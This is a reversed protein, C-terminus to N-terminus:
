LSRTEKETADAAPHYRAPLRITVTTGNNEESDVTLTGHHNECIIKRCVTLGLGMGGSGTKTTFFPDFIRKAVDKKIGAGNDIFEITVYHQGPGSNGSTRITLDGHEHIADMANKIVNLVVQKIENYNANIKPLSQQLNVNLEIKKGPEQLVPLMLDLSSSIVDNIDTLGYKLPDHPASFDLCEKVFNNLRKIEEHIINISQDILPDKETRKQIITLAGGIAHLPNRIEHAVFPFLEGLFLLRESQIIERSIDKKRLVDKVASLLTFKGLPKKLYDSAGAKMLTVVLQEEGHGTMMIVAIDDNMKRIEKLVDIGMMEPLYCDLLVLEPSTEQIQELARKGDYACYTQFGENALIDSVTDTVDQEDDVIM